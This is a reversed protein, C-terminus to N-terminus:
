LFLYRRKELRLRTVEAQRARESAMVAEIRRRNEEFERLVRDKEDVDLKGVEALRAERLRSQENELKERQRQMRKEAVAAEEALLRQHESEMAALEAENQARLAAEMEEKARKAAALRSERAAELEAQPWV